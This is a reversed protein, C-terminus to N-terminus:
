RLLARFEDVTLGADAIIGRLTGTRLDKGGHSPVTVHRGTDPHKLTV